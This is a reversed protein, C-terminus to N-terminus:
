EVRPLTENRISVHVLQNPGFMRPPTTGVILEGSKLEVEVWDTAGGREVRVISHRNAVDPGTFPVFGLQFQEPRVVVYDGTTGEIVLHEGLVSTVTGSSDETVKVLSCDGLAIAVHRCTPKEYLAQAEGTALIVGDDIVTLRDSIALAEHRDHTVFVGTIKRKRLVDVTERRLERRLESNLNSFPEDFVILKPSQALARALAVRQQQGGSLAAVSRDGFESLGVAELLERVKGSNKTAMGFAVNGAVSLHPFLAYDQFVVGVGRREPPVRKTKPGDVLTGFLELTGSRLPEFGAIARLITTKGSGSEGLLVHIDGAAIELDIGRVVDAGKGYCISAQRIRVASTGKADNNANDTNYTNDTNDADAADAADNAAQTADKAAQNTETM